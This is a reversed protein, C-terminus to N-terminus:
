IPDGYINFGKPPEPIIEEELTKIGWYNRKLTDFFWPVPEVLIANCQPQETLMKYVDDNGIFSGIQVISYFM